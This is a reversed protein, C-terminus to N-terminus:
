RPSARTPALCGVLARWGALPDAMHHLVGTASVVHWRRRLAAVNLLDAHAYVVNAIGRERSKRAAYALSARSLDIATVRADPHREATEIAEQGTGCGAVLIELQSDPLQVSAGPVQRALWARFPMPTGRPLDIWRPYPNDEYQAQVRRSVPDDIATAAALGVRLADAARPEAIQLALVPGLAAPWTRELLRSADQLAHLSRYAALVAVHSPSAGAGRALAQAIEEALREVAITEAADEDFVYENVFCQQAIVCALDLDDLAGELLARRLAM